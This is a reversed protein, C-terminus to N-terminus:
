SIRSIYLQNYTFSMGVYRTIFKIKFKIHTAFRGLLSLWNQVVFRINEYYGTEFM